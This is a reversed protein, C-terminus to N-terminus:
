AGSMAMGFILASSLFLHLAACLLVFLALWLRPVPEPGRRWQDVIFLTWATVPLWWWELGLYILEFDRERDIALAWPAFPWLLSLLAFVAQLPLRVPRRGDASLPWVAWLLALAQGLALPLMPWFIRLMTM